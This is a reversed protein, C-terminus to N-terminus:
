FKPGASQGAVNPIAALLIASLILTAFLRVLLTGATNKFSKAKGPLISDRGVNRM